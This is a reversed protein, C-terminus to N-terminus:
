RVWGKGSTIRSINQQSTGKTYSNQKCYDSLKYTSWGQRHRHRIQWVIAWDLGCNPNREGSLAHSRYGPTLLVRETDHGTEASHATALTKTRFEKKCWRARCVSKTYEGTKRGM